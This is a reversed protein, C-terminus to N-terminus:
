TKIIYNVVLYPQLNNHAGGGGTTAPQRYVMVEGSAGTTLVASYSGTSIRHAAFGNTGEGSDHTHSPMESTTLTHTKAGGTQGLTAFETQTSTRGVLVRGRADPVRFTTAGDGAGYATGIAAFLGPYDGRNVTQGECLLWGAPATAGAYASITGPPDSQGSTIVRSVGDGVLLTCVAGVVPHGASGPWAAQVEREGLSVTPHGPDSASTVVGVRVTIPTGAAIIEALDDLSAM